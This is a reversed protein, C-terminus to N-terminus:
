VTVRTVTSAYRHGRSDADDGEGAGEVVDVGGAGCPQGAGLRHRQPVAVGVQPADVRHDHGASEGVAVIQPGPRDRLERRHHALDDGGGPAAHRHQADAVAELHQALGPQQGARQGAVGSQM